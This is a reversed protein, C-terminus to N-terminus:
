EKEKRYEYEGEGRGIEVFGLSKSEDEGRIADGGIKLREGGIGFGISKFSRRM